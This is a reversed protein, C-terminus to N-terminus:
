ICLSGILLESTCVFLSGGGGSCYIIAMDYAHYFNSVTCCWVNWVFVQLIYSFINLCTVYSEIYLANTLCTVFNGPCLQTFTVVLVVLESYFNDVFSVSVGGNLVGLIYSSVQESQLTYVFFKLFFLTVVHRVHFLIMPSCISVHLHCM